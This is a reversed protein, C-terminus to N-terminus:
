ATARRVTSLGAQHLADSAPFSEAKSCALRRPFGSTRRALKPGPPLWPAQALPHAELARDPSLGTLGGLQSCICSLVHAPTPGRARKGGGSPQSPKPGPLPGEVPGAM